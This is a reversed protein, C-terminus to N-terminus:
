STFPELSAVYDEVVARQASSTVVVIETEVARGLTTDGDPGKFVQWTAGNIEVEGDPESGEARDRVLKPLEDAAATRQTLGVYQNVDTVVNMQWRDDILEARTARWGEPLETPVLPVFGARVEVGSAATRWDVDSTPQDPTQTFLKGFLFIALVVGGLVLVSRLVDGMAPVGRSYGSM